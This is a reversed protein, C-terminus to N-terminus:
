TSVWSLYYQHFCHSWECKFGFMNHWWETALHVVTTWLMTVISESYILFVYNIAHTTVSMNQWSIHTRFKHYLPNVTWNIFSVVKYRFHWSNWFKATKRVQLYLLLNIHVLVSHVGLLLSLIGFNYHWPIPHTLYQCYKKIM